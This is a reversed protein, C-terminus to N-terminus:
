ASNELRMICCELYRLRTVTMRPTSRSPNRPMKWSGVLSKSRPAAQLVFCLRLGPISMLPPILRSYSIL